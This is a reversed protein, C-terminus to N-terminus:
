SQHCCRDDHEQDDNEVDNASCGSELSYGTVESDVAFASLALFLKLQVSILPSKRVTCDALRMSM